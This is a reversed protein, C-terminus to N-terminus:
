RARSIACGRSRNTSFVQIKTLMVAHARRLFLRVEEFMAPEFRAWIWNRVKEINYHSEAGQDQHEDQRQRGAAEHEYSRPNDPRRHREELRIRALGTEPHM